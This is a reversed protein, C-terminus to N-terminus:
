IKGFFRFCFDKLGQQGYYQNQLRYDDPLVRNFLIAGVSTEVIQDKIGALKLKKELWSDAKVKIKQQIKIHGLQNAMIAEAPESFIRVKGDEPERVCTLYYCGWVIDKTPRVVPDGTAPKLLNKSALM